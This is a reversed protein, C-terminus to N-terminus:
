PRKAALRCYEDIAARLRRNERWAEQGEAKDDPKGVALIAKRL